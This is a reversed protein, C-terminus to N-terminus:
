AREWEDRFEVFFDRENASILDLDYLGEAVCVRDGRVANIKVWRLDDCAQIHFQVGGGSEFKVPYLTGIKGPAFLDDPSWQPATLGMCLYVESREPIIGLAIETYNGWIGNLLSLWSFYDSKSSMMLAQEIPTGWKQFKKGGTKSSDFFSILTIPFATKGNLVIKHGPVFSSDLVPYSLHNIGTQLYPQSTLSHHPELNKIDLKTKIRSSIESHFSEFPADKDIRSFRRSITNQPTFELVWRSSYHTYMFSSHESKEVTCLDEKGKTVIRYFSGALGASKVLGRRSNMLTEIGRQSSHSENLNCAGACIFFLFVRSFTNM